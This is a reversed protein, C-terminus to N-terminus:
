VAKKTKKVRKKVEKVAEEYIEPDINDKYEELLELSKEELLKMKEEETLDTSKQADVLTDTVIDIANEEIQKDLEERKKALIDKSTSYLADYQSDLARSLQLTESADRNYAVYLLEALEESDLIRGTVSSTAM